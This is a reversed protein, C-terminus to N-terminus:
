IHVVRSGLNGCDDFGLFPFILIMDDGRQEGVAPREGEGLLREEKGEHGLAVVAVAVDLVEIAFSHAVKHDLVGNGAFLLHVPGVEDDDLVREGGQLLQSGCVAAAELDRDDADRATVALGGDLLPEVLQELGVVVGHARGAAVVRLDAYGERYPLDPGLGLHSDELGTDGLGVLHYVELLNDFGRQSEDGVDALSVLLPELGDLLFAELLEDQQFGAVADDVVAVVLRM